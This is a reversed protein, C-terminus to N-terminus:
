ARWKKSQEILPNDDLRSFAEAKSFHLEDGELSADFYTVQKYEDLVVLVEMTESGHEKMAQIAALLPSSAAIFLEATFTADLRNQWLCVRYHNNLVTM